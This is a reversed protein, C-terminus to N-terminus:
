KKALMFRKEKSSLGKRKSGAIGHPPISYVGGYTGAM